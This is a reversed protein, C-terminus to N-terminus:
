EGFGPGYPEFNLELNDVRDSTIVGSVEVKFRTGPRLNVNKFWERSAERVLSITSVNSIGDDSRITVTPTGAGQIFVSTLKVRGLAMWGTEAQFTLGMDFPDSTYQAYTSNYGLRAIRGDSFQIRAGTAPHFFADVVEPFTGEEWVREGNLTPPTLRMFRTECFAWVENNFSLLILKQPTNGVLRRVSARVTETLEQTQYIADTLGSLARTARYLYIGDIGGILAGGQFPIAARVSLPPRAEPLRRPQTADAATDGIMVYTGLSGTAFLIDEPVIATVPESRTPSLYLTRPRGEDTSNPPTFDVEPPPLYNTPSGSRSLFLKRDSALVMHGKWVSISTPTFSIPFGSTDLSVTPLSTLLTDSVTDLYGDAASSDNNPIRALRKWNAGQKRFLAIRDYGDNFYTDNASPELKVWSGCPGSQRVGQAGQALKRGLKMSVAPTLTGVGNEYAYAYEIEPALYTPSSNGMGPIDAGGVALSDMLVRSNGNITQLAIQFALTKIGAGRLSSPMFVRVGMEYVGGAVNELTYSTQCATLSGISPNTVVSQSAATNMTTTPVPVVNEFRLKFTLYDSRASDLVPNFFLRFTLTANENSYSGQNSDIDWYYTQTSLIINNWWAILGATNWQLSDGASVERVQNPPRTITAGLTGGLEFVAPLREWAASGSTAGIKRRYVGDVPNSAYIRDEYQAFTWRSPEISSSGNLNLETLNGSMGGVYVRARASGNPRIIAIIEQDSGYEAFFSGYGIDGANYGARSRVDGFRLGGKLNGDRFSANNARFWFGEPTLAEDNSNFLGKFQLKM